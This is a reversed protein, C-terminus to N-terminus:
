VHGHGVWVAGFEVVQVKIHISNYPCVESCSMASVENFMRLNVGTRVWLALNPPKM